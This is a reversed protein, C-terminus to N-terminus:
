VRGCQLEFAVVCRDGLTAFQRKVVADHRCAAHGGHRRCEVDAALPHHIAGSCECKGIDGFRQQDDTATVDTQFHAAHVSM